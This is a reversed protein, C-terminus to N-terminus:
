EKINRSVLVNENYNKIEVIDAPLYINNQNLEEILKIIVRSKIKLHFAKSKSKFTDIWYLVRVNVTSVGLDDVVIVPKKDGQLVEPINLLVSNIIEITNTLDSSYDLGIVIEYRLFGDITYNFLPMKIMQSNPIYVDKGDLTKIVSDRMNLESVYGVTGSSEILDGIKFPSKFAMLIGSLFNEGIDKFAFGIVFTTIGAGAMIHKAIGGLGIVNLFLVFGTTTIIFAVIKGLFVALLPNKTKPKVRKTIVSKILWSLVVFLFLILLGLGIQPLLEITKDMIGKLELM